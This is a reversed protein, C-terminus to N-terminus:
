WSGALGVVGGDSIPAGFLSVSSSPDQRDPRAFVMWDIVMSAGAGAFVAGVTTTREDWRAHAVSGAVVPLVVRLAGSAMMHGLRDHEKHLIPGALTYGFVGLMMLLGSGMEECECNANARALAYGGVVASVSIGDALMISSTYPRDAAAEQSESEPSASATTAALLVVLAPALRLM